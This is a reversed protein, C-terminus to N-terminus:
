CRCPAAGAALNAIGPRGHRAQAVGVVKTDPQGTVMVIPRQAESRVPCPLMAMLALLGAILLFRPRGGSFQPIFFSMGRERLIERESM